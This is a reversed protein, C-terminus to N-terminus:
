QAAPASVSGDGVIVKAPRLVKGKLEYGNELVQIIEGEKGPGLTVVEHRATDVQKGLVDMKTLGMDNMTRIFDQEIAQVGKVWEHSALDKPLHQFARQFNDVTPLLKKLFGEAAFTGLEDRDKQMRIKANQLDAQARAAIDTMQQLKATLDAVQDDQPIKQDNMAVM